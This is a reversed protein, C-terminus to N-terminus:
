QSDGSPCAWGSCAPDVGQAAGGTDQAARPPQQQTGTLIPRRSPLPIDAEGDTAPPAQVAAPQALAPAAPPAAKPSAANKSHGLFAYALLGAGLVALSVAGAGILALKKRRGGTRRAARADADDPGANREAETLIDPTATSLAQMLSTYPVPKGSPTEAQGTPLDALM